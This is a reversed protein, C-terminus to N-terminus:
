QKVGETIYKISEIATEWIEKREQKAIVACVKLFTFLHPAEGRIWRQISGDSIRARQILWKQNKQNDNLKKIIWKGFTRKKM